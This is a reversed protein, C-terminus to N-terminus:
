QRGEGVLARGALLLASLVLVAALALTWSGAWSAKGRGFRRAIDPFLSVYSERGPRLYEIRVPGEAPHGPLPQGALALRHPTAARLCFRTRTARRVTRVPVVVDGQTWGAALRGETAIRALRGPNRFWVHLAPGPPGYTGIRLRVAATGAPILEDPQCFRHQGRVIAVFAQADVNNTGQLRTAPRVALLVVAALVAVGALSLVVAIAGRRAAPEGSV